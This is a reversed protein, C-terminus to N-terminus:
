EQIRLAEAVKKIETYLEDRLVPKTIYSDMGADLCREIMVTM